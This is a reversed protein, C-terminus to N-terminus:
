AHVQRTLSGSVQRPDTAHWICCTQRRCSTLLQETAAKRSDGTIGPADCLHSWNWLGPHVIRRISKTMPNDGGIENDPM